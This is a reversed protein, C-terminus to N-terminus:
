FYAQKIMQWRPSSHAKAAAYSAVEKPSTQAFFNIEQDTLRFAVALAKSPNKIVKSLHDLCQSWIRKRHAVRLIGLLFLGWPIAQSSILIANWFVGIFIDPFVVDAFLCCFSLLLMCIILLVERSCAAMPGTWSRWNAAATQYAMFEEYLPEEFAMRVAHVMEHALLEDKKYLGLYKAKTKFFSRLQVFASLIHNEHVIWTAAGEWPALGRNHYCIRIWDPKIDFLLEVRKLAALLAHDYPETSEESTGKLCNSVRSTFCLLDEDPGPILGRKNLDLLEFSLNEASVSFNMPSHNM